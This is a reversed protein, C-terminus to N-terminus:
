SCMETSIRASSVPRVASDLRPDPSHPPSEVERGLAARLSEPLAHEVGVNRAFFDILRRVKAPKEQLLAYLMELRAVLMHVAGLPQAISPSEVHPLYGPDPNRWPGFNETLNLDFDAPIWVDVGEFRVRRLDFPTFVFTQLHGMGNRVGTVLGTQTARYLFVDVAMGTRAHVALLNYTPQDPHVEVFVRFGGQAQLLEQLLQADGEYLLGVDLDKDHSLFSGQRAYGLLTGSVLFPKMGAPELAACLDALAAAASAVDFPNDVPQNGGPAHLVRRAAAVGIRGVNQLVGDMGAIATEIDNARCHLETCLFGAKVKQLPTKVTAAVELAAGYNGAGAAVEATLLAVDDFLSPNARLASLRSHALLLAPLLEICEATGPARLRHRGALSRLMSIKLEDVGGRQWLEVVLEAARDVRRQDVLFEVALSFHAASGCVRRPVSPIPNTDSAILTPNCAIAAYRLVHHPPLGDLAAPMLRVSRSQYLALLLGCHQPNVGNEVGLTCLMLVLEDQRLARCHDIFEISCATALGVAQLQGELRGMDQAALASKLRDVLALTDPSVSM